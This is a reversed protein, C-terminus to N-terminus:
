SPSGGGEEAEGLAGGAGVLSSFSDTIPSRLDVLHQPSEPTPEPQSHENQVGVVATGEEEVIGEEDDDNEDAEMEALERDFEQAFGDFDDEEEEGGVEQQEDFEQELEKESNGDLTGSSSGPTNTGSPPAYSSVSPAVGEVIRLGSSPRNRVMKQRKSLRSGPISDELSPEGTEEDPTSSRSRKSAKKTITDTSGDGPANGDEAETDEDDSGLWEKLEEDVDMWGVDTMDPMEAASFEETHISQMEDDDSDDDESSLMPGDLRHDDAGNLPRPHRDEPHIPLLYPKEPEKRWNSISDYLWQPTIIKIHPYKSAARRVKATRSQYYNTEPPINSRRIPDSVRAAVLHTVRSHVDDAVVAGFSRCWHAIDSSHPM